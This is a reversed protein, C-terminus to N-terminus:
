LRTPIGSDPCHKRGDARDNLRENRLLYCLTEQEDDCVGVSLVDAWRSSKIARWSPLLNFWCCRKEDLWSAPGRYQSCLCAAVARAWAQKHLHSPWAEPKNTCVARGGSSICTFSVAALVLTYTFWSILSTNTSFDVLRSDPSEDAIYVQICLSSPSLRHRSLRWLTCM